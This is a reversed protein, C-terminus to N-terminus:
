PSRREKTFIVGRTALATVDLAYKSHPSLRTPIYQREETTDNGEIRGCRNCAPGAGAARAGGHRGDGRAPSLFLYPV